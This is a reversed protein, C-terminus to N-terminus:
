KIWENRSSDERGTLSEIFLIATILALFGSAVYTVFQNHLYFSVGLTFAVISFLFFGRWSFGRNLISYVVVAILLQLNLLMDPNGFPGLQHFMSTPKQNIFYMNGASLAVSYASALLYALYIYSQNEKAKFFFAVALFYFTAMSYWTAPNGRPGIEIYHTSIWALSIHFVFGALLIQKTNTSLGTALLSGLSTGRLSGARWYGTLGILCVLAGSIELGEEFANRPGWLYGPWLVHHEMYENPAASVLLAIGSLLVM